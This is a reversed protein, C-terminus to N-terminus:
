PPSLDPLRLQAGTITGRAVPAGDCSAEVDFRVMDGLDVTWEVRYDLRCGALVPQLFKMEVAAGVAIRKGYERMRNQLALLDDPRFGPHMRAGRDLNRLAELASAPDGGEAEAARHMTAIVMLLTCAQGLGEITLVGPWIPVGDFHGEFFPENATIHRGAALSPPPGPSFSAVFDVMRLPRRQPLLRELTGPGLKLDVPSAKETM